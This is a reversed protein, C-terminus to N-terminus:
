SVRVPIARLVRHSFGATTGSTSKYKSVLATSASLGAQLQTAVCSQIVSTASNVANTNVNAWVDSAATGGVDYSMQAFFGIGANLPATIFAEVTVQYDGARALTLSPGATTLAAYTTSTTNEGTAVAALMPVGGIFEWKYASASGANYQFQWRTGNGDVATAIWIDGDKPSGPPGAALTGTTITPNTIGYVVKEAGQSTYFRFAM